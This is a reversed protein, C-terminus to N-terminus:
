DESDLAVSGPIGQGPKPALSRIRQWLLAKPVATIQLAEMCRDLRTPRDKLNQVAKGLDRSISDGYAATAKETASRLLDRSPTMMALDILDRSHVSSDAWRDSNALLKSTAMDLPTLTAVDCLKDDATPTALAIRGELVIEFKIAVADVRVATRIGYRDAMLERAPALDSGPRALAGIGAPGTVLQRLVRYGDLDSVLFDIDVSERYEGFRLAMATGGGFYCSNAALLDGDLSELVAAIRRHHEREFM